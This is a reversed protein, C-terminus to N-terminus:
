FFFVEWLFRPVSDGRWAPWASVLTHSGHWRSHLAMEKKGLSLLRANSPTLREETYAKRQKRCSSLRWNRIKHSQRERNPLSTESAALFMCGTFVEPRRRAMQQRCILRCPARLVVLGLRHEQREEMWRGFQTEKGMVDWSM